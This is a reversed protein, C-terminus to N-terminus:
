QDSGLTNPTTTRAPTEGELLSVRWNAILDAARLARAADSLFMNLDDDATSAVLEFPDPLSAALEVATQAARMAAAIETKLKRVTRDAETATDNAACAATWLRDAEDLGHVVALRTHVDPFGAGPAGPVPESRILRPLDGSHPAFDEPAIHPLNPKFSVPYAETGAPHPVRGIAITGALRRCWLRADPWSLPGVRIDAYGPRIILVAALQSEPQGTM